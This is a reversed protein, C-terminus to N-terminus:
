INGVLTGNKYMQCKFTQKSPMSCVDKNSSVENFFLFSGSGGGYMAFVISTAFAAGLLVNIFLDGTYVICNKYLKIGIDILFYVILSFFLWYNPDGNTFMPIYLYAITFAFVFSSFSPNGYISYEISTCITGDKTLPDTGYIYYIFERVCLAAVLFGLYIFGKFNQFIISLSFFGLGLVMPSYFCLYLIFSYPRNVKFPSGETVGNYIQNLVSPDKNNM